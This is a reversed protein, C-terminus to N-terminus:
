RISLRLRRNPRLPFVPRFARKLHVSTNLAMSAVSDYARRPIANCTCSWGRHFPVPLHVGLDLQMRESLLGPETVCANNKLTTNFPSIVGNAREAGMVVRLSEIGLRM